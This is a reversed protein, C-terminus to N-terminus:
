SIKKYMFYFQIVDDSFNEYYDYFENGLVYDGITTHGLQSPHVGDGSNYETKIGTGSNSKTLTYFDFYVQFSSIVYNRFVSMDRINNAYPCVPIFTIRNSKMRNKFIQLANKWTSIDQDNTGMAYIIRKPKVFNMIEPLLAIAETSRDGPGCVRDFGAIGVWSTSSSEAADGYTISDGVAVDGGVLQSSELKYSTIQTVESTIIRLKHTAFVVNSADLSVTVNTTMNKVSFITNWGDKHLTFELLDGDTINVSEVSTHVSNNYSFHSCLKNNENIYFDGTYNGALNNIFLKITKKNSVIVKKWKWLASVYSFQLPQSINAPSVLKGSTIGWGQNIDTDSLDEFTLINIITGIEM